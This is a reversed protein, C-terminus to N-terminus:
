PKGPPALRSTEVTQVQRQHDQFRAALAHRVDHELSVADKGHELSRM